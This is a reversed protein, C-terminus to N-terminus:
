DFEVGQAKTRKRSNPNIVSMGKQKVPPAKQHTKKKGNCATDFVSNFGSSSAAHQLSEIKKEAQGLQKELDISRQAVCVLLTSLETQVDPSALVPLDYSASKGDKVSRLVVSAKEDSLLVKIDGNM